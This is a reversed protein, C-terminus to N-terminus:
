FPFQSIYYVDIKIVLQPSIGLINGNIGHGEGTLINGHVNLYLYMLACITICLHLFTGM